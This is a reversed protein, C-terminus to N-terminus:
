AAEKNNQGLIAADFYGDRFTVSNAVGVFEFRKTRTLSLTIDVGTLISSAAAFDEFQAIWQRPTSGIRRRSSSM